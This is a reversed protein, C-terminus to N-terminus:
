GIVAIGKIYPPIGERHIQLLKKYNRKYYKKDKAKQEWLRVCQIMTRCFNPIDIIFGEKIGKDFGVFHCNDITVGNCPYISMFRAYEKKPKGSRIHASAQHILSCRYRYCDAGSFFWQVQPRVNQNYWIEYADGDHGDTNGKKSELAACIGPLTLTSQLAVIYLGADLAREIENLIHEM